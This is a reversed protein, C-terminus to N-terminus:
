VSTYFGFWYCDVNQATFTVPPPLLTVQPRVVGVPSLSFWVIKGVLVAGVDGALHPVVRLAVVLVVEEMTNM